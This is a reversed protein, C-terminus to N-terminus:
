RNAGFRAVVSLGFWASKVRRVRRGLAMYALSIDHRFDNYNTRREGGSEVRVDRM